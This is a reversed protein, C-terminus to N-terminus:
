QTSWALVGYSAGDENVEVLATSTVNGARAWVRMRRQLVIDPDYGYPLNAQTGDDWTDVVDFTGAVVGGALRVADAQYDNTIRIQGMPVSVYGPIDVVARGLDTLGANAELTVDVIPFSDDDNPARPTVVRLAPPDPPDVPTGTFELTAIGDPEVLDDPVLPDPFGTWGGLGSVERNHAVVSFRYGLNRAGTTADPDPELPPLDEFV